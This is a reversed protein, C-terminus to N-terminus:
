NKRKALSEALDRLFECDGFNERAIRGALGTTRAILAECADRGLVHYLTRKGSKEDAGVPKGLDSASGLADLLDDRAQFALGLCAGYRCAAEERAEPGGAAAVGMACAAVLLAGTKRGILDLRGAEDLNLTEAAMDMFQGGCIGDVGAADALRRSCAACQEAPLASRLIAGFAEAQLADGALVAEWEGFARHNTPNGRRLDSDDMCPLDDHILSYTHLMEVACAVPLADQIQGGSAETFALTLVPRVRKGGALLSYRMAKLLGDFPFGGPQFYQELARDVQERYGEYRASFDM